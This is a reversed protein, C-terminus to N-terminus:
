PKTIRTMMDEDMLINQWCVGVEDEMENAFYIMAMKINDANPMDLILMKANCQGFFHELTYEFGQAIEKYDLVRGMINKEKNIFYVYMLRRTETEIYFHLFSGYTDHLNENEESSYYISYKHVPNTVDLISAKLSSFSMGATILIM